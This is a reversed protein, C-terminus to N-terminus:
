FFFLISVFALFDNFLSIGRKFKINVLIVNRPVIKKLKYAENCCVLVKNKISLQKIHELMFVNFFNCTNAILVIKFKKRM